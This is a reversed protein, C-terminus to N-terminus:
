TRTDMKLRSPPPPFFWISFWDFEWLITVTFFVGGSEGLWCLFILIVHPPLVATRFRSLKRNWNAVNDPSLFIGNFHLRCHQFYAQFYGNEFTKKSLSASGCGSGSGLHWLLPNPDQDSKATVLQTKVHFIYKVTCIYTIHWLVYMRLNLLWKSLSSILWNQYMEKSKSGYECEWYPYLIRIWSFWILSCGHPDPDLVSVMPDSIRLLWCCARLDAPLSVQPAIYQGCCAPREALGEWLGGAPGHHHRWQLCVNASKTLRKKCYVTTWNM